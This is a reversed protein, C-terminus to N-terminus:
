RDTAAYGMPQVTVGDPCLFPKEGFNTVIETGNSFRTRQVLHDKTLFEHSLMEAYGVKRAIPCVNRYCRLFRDKHRQWIERDFMWMPPTGYLINFLDRQDWVEPVKNNYDGWYWTSVTCDHYVLEWLPIRYYAGVQYKLFDQTPPKYKVMNRGADPLRYPGLSLMGEYYHVYPVSPDIGTETGVVLNMDKSCFELLRMKNLRDMTRSQPHRPNYCERWPSATTTDIFRARYHIKRLEQPIKRMARALGPISCIVGGPYNGDTRRIEWGPMWSGDPLFVLDEPWGEHKANAPKGPPWVDQYIDYRSTLYGLANIQEIQRASGGSSWLVRDVGLSKLERCVGVKDRQWTWVNVAGILLDVDPNEALKEKLTKFRGISKAYERYRKAQAVYGGETSLWYRLKRTYAFKGLSSQWQPQVCLVGADGRDIRIRMDDPTEIITMIGKRLDTLGYWSMCIGHGSYGILTLSRVSKDEVPFLIGENMPIALYFVGKEVFPLPFPLFGKMEGSGSFAVEIEPAHPSVRVTIELSSADLLNIARLQYGKADPLQEASTFVLPRRPAMQRWIHNVRNDHIEMAGSELDFTARVLSNGFTVKDPRHSKSITDKLNGLKVLSLEDFWATAPGMGTIRFEISACDGPVVFRRQLKKWVHTGQTSVVGYLWNLVRNDPDRTVVSLGVNGNVNECKVFGAIEFFDLGRVEFNQGYSACWDRRGSHTVKFSRRGRLANATDPTAVGVGKDRLWMTAWDQPYDEGEEFGSNSLLNQAAHSEGPMVAILLILSILSPKKADM